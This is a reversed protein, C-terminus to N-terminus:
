CSREGVRGKEKAYTRDTIVVMNPLAKKIARVARPILGAPNYSETGINNKQDDPILPFLAIAGIGLDYVTTVEALLVDLSYRFCGPMSPIEEKKREGEMVFLPYIFDNVTLTTERVMRRLATTRRLRRPRYTATEAAPTSKTPIDAVSTLPPKPHPPPISM